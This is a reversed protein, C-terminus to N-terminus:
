HCKESIDGSGARKRPQIRHGAQWDPIAWSKSLNSLSDIKLNKESLQAVHNDQNSDSGTRSMGTGIALFDFVSIGILESVFFHFGTCVKETLSKVRYPMQCIFQQYLFFYSATDADCYLPSKCFYSNHLIQKSTSERGEKAYRIIQTHIVFFIQM